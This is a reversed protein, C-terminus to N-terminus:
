VLSCSGDRPIQGELDSGIHAAEMEACVLISGATVGRDSRAWQWRTRPRPREVVVVGHSVCTHTGRPSFDSRQYHGNHLLVTLTDTAVWGLTGGAAPAVEGGGPRRLQGEGFRGRRPGLDLHDCSGRSLFQSGIFEPSNAGGRPMSRISARDSVSPRTVMELGARARSSPSSASPLVADVGEQLSSMVGSLLEVAGVAGVEGHAV